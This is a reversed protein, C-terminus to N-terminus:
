ITGAAQDRREAPGDNQAQAATVIRFVSDYSIGTAFAGAPRLADGADAADVRLRAHRGGITFFFVDLLCCNPKRKNITLQSM